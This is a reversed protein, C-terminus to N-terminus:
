PGTCPSVASMRIDSNKLGDTPKIYFQITLPVDPIIVQFILQLVHPHM